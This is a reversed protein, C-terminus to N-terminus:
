TSSLINKKMEIWMIDAYLVWSATFTSMCTILTSWCLTVLIKYGANFIIHIKIKNKMKKVGAPNKILQVYAHIAVTIWRTLSSTIDPWCGMWITFPGGRKTLWDTANKVWWVTLRVRKKQLKFVNYRLGVYMHIHHRPQCVRYRFSRGTDIDLTKYRCGVNQQRRDCKIEEERERERVRVCM